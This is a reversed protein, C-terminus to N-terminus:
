QKHKRHNLETWERQLESREDALQQRIKEQHKDIAERREVLEVRMAEQSQATISLQEFQQSIEKEEKAKKEIWADKEAEFDKIRKKLSEEMPELAAQRLDLAYSRSTVDKQRRGMEEVGERTEKNLKQANEELEGAKQENKRAEDLRATAEFYFSGISATAIQKRGELNGTESLLIGKKEAIDDAFAIYEDLIRKRKLALELKFTNLEKIQKAYYEKIEQSEQAERQERKKIESRQLLRM